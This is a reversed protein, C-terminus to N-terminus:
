STTSPAGSTAPRRGSCRAAGRVLDVDGVVRRMSLSAGHVTRSFVDRGLQDTGFLHSWSPAQLKDSGVGVLPDAHAFWDPVVAWLAVIALVLLSLIVGPRAWGPLRSALPAAVESEVLTESLGIADSM